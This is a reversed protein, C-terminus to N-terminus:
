AGVPAKGPQCIQCDDERRSDEMWVRFAKPWAEMDAYGVLDAARRLMYGTYGYLNVKGWQAASWHEGVPIVSIPSKAKYAPGTAGKRAFNIDETVYDADYIATQAMGSFQTMANDGIVYLGPRSQMHDDVVVKGNKALNFLPANDKYFPNNAVGATWVVTKSVLSEGALQLAEATEAQVTAGTMVTVGLKELRSKVRASMSEPSRPLLRPAAEVLDVKYSPKQMGHLKTIRRLYDGLAGALEVGTPGGGVVVYNTDTKKDEILQKHLHRKFNEAGQITKIDFSFEPLGQIGFYNTVSGLALILIDYSYSTGSKGTVTKKDPDLKTATDMVRKVPKRGLMETLPIASETRAGGTASHYLQPFYSFDDSPSLLTVDLGSRGGLREAARLGGFGAGVILVSANQSNSQNM